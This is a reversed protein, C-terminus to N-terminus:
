HHIFPNVMWGLMGTLQVPASLVALCVCGVLPDAIPRHLVASDAIEIAGRGFHGAEDNYAGDLVVTLEDGAHTHMPMAKGPRIRLLSARYGHRRTEIVYEEVGSVWSKWRLNDWDSGVYPRLASPVLSPVAPPAVFVHQVERDLRALTATLGAASVAVPEAQELLSGGISNLQAYASHMQPNLDLWTAVALAVPEPTAGTAYDLLLEPPMSNTM